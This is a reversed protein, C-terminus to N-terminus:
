QIPTAQASLSKVLQDVEGAVANRSAVLQNYQAVLNQLNQVENNYDSVLQNYGPVGANYVAVNGSNRLDTLAAQQNSIKTQKTQLDAETSEIQKKLSALTADDQAVTAQRSSFEGQYQAAYAAVQGRNTFYQKYYTELDAPLNTVETGFISHMENVVDHPESKKYADITSMLRPDHVDHQYYDNLMADVRKREKTSLRDYAGHLMEHAATVQKVGNLRPDSVDLLFIGRQDSHYCGLVITQEGGNNPCERVFTTKQSIAPQNVYFIKRGYDTMTDQEALQSAGASPNYSRLKWQDSLNRWNAALAILLGIWVLSLLWLGIRGRERLQSAKASKSKPRPM